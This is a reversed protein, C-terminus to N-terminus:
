AAVWTADPDDADASTADGEAGLKRLHAWVSRRAVPHLFDPVDTYIAAVLAETGAGDSGASRLADMVQAERARRHTLYEDIKAAPADILHGHAPAIARLPPRLARLRELSALYAAMDGDPPNIVVTSEGMIHDGSFLLREEELQFCLHNSAHGPTHIATLRFETAEIGDGDALARDIVLGDRADFALVEAGTREKLGAAGPSHDPHTHTCVIWRIASGGCGAIADLHTSDDPGPDVVVIEDVGVLYTNTGPGTMMGPNNCVIRRVLPSLASAVEPVLPKPGPPPEADAGTDGERAAPDTM